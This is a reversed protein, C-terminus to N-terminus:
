KHIGCCFTNAAGAKDTGPSGLNNALIQPSQDQPRICTGQLEVVFANVHDTFGTAFIMSSDYDTCDDKLAHRTMTLM